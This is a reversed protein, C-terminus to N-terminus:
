DVELIMTFFDLLNATNDDKRASFATQLVDPSFWYDTHFTLSRLHPQTSMNIFLSNLIVTNTNLLKGNEFECATMPLEFRVESAIM